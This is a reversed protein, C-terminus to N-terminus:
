LPVGSGCAHRAARQDANATKRRKAITRTLRARRAKAGRKTHSLQRQSAKLAQEAADYRSADSTCARAVTVLGSEDNAYVRDVSDEVYVCLTQTGFLVPRGSGSASGTYAVGTQPQPKLVANLLTVGPTTEFSGGCEIALKVGVRVSGQAIDLAGADASVTVTTKLPAHARAVPTVNVTMRVPTFSDAGAGSALLTSTLLAIAALLALAGSRRTV